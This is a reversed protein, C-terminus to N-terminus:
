TGVNMQIIPWSKSNQWFPFPLLFIFFHRNELEWLLNMLLSDTQSQKRVHKSKKWGMCVLYVLKRSLKLLQWFISMLGGYVWLTGVTRNWFHTFFVSQVSKQEGLNLYFNVSSITFSYFIAKKSFQTLTDWQPWFMESINFFIQRCTSPWISKCKM